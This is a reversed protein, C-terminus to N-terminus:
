AEVHHLLLQHPRDEEPQLPLAVGVESVEKVEDERLRLELITLTQFFKAWFRIM